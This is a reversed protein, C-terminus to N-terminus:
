YSHEISPIVTIRLPEDDLTATFRVGVSPAFVLARFSRPTDEKACSAISPQNWTTFQLLYTDFSLQKTRVTLEDCTSRVMVMGSLNHAGQSLADRAVVTRSEDIARTNITSGILLFFAYAIACCVIFFWLMRRFIDAM